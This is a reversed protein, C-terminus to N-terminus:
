IERAFTVGYVEAAGARKLVKACERLTAGSTALDDVLLVTANTLIKKDGKFEFADKVNKFRSVKNLKFQPKTNKIRKLNLHIELNFDQVLSKSLLEAQNYGRKKLKSSSLPIPIVIPHQSLLSSFLENQGVMEIFLKGMTGKLNSTYPEYKFSFVLRKVVGGYVVGCLLGDIGYPTKCGPHTRGIVSRSMCVPCVFEEFQKIRSLCNACVYTGYKKCGICRKPYILDTIINVFKM